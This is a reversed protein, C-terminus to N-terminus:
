ARSLQVQGRVVVIKYAVVKNTYPNRAFIRAGNTAKKARTLIERGLNANDKKVTAVTYHRIRAASV